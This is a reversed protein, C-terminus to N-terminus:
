INHSYCITLHQNLEFRTKIYSFSTPKITQHKDTSDRVFLTRVINSYNWAVSFKIFLLCSSVDVTFCFGLNLKVFKARFFASLKNHKREFKTQLFSFMMVLVELLSQLESRLWLKGCETSILSTQSLSVHCLCPYYCEYGNKARQILHLVM